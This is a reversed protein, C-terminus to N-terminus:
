KKKGLQDPHMSLFVMVGKGQVFRAAVEQDSRIWYTEGTRQAKGPQWIKGSAQRTLLEKQSQETWERPSGNADPAVTYIEMSVIDNVFYASLFYGKATLLLQDGVEKGAGYRARLQERTDGVEARVTALLFGLCCFAARAPNLMPRSM